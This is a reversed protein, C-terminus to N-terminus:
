KTYIADIVIQVKHLYGRDSNVILAFLRQWLKFETKLINKSNLIIKNDNCQM